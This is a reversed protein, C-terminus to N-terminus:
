LDPLPDALIASAGFSGWTENAGSSMSGFYIVKNEKKTRTIQSDSKDELLAFKYGNTGGISAEMKKLQTM